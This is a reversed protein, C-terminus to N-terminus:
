KWKLELKLEQYYGQDLTIYNALEPRSRLQQPTVRLQKNQTHLDATIYLTQWEYFQGMKSQSIYAIYGSGRM